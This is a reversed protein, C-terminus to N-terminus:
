SNLRSVTSLNIQVICNQIDDTGCYGHYVYMFDPYGYWRHQQHGQSGAICNNKKM